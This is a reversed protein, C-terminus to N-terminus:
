CVCVMLRKITAAGEQVEHGRLLLTVPGYQLVRKILSAFLWSIHGVGSKPLTILPRVFPNEIKSITFSM